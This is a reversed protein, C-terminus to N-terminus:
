FKRLFLLASYRREVHMTKVESPYHFLPYRLTKCSRNKVSLLDAFIDAKFSFSFSNAFSRCRNEWIDLRANNVKNVKCDIMM